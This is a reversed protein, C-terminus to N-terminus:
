HVKEFLLRIQEREDPSLGMAVEEPDFRSRSFSMELEESSLKVGTWDTEHQYYPPSLIIGQPAIYERDTLTLKDGSLTWRFSGTPQWNNKGDGAFNVVHFGKGDQQLELKEGQFDDKEMTTESVIEGDTVRTVTRQVAVWEEIVPGSGQKRDCGAIMALLALLLIYKKM